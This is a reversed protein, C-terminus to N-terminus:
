IHILSLGNKDTTEMGVDIGEIDRLADVLNTYPRTELEERTVVSISAPADAVKQEFGAATVVM